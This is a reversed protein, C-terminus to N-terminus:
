TTPPQQVMVKVEESAQRAQRLLCGREEEEVCLFRVKEGDADREGEEEDEGEM